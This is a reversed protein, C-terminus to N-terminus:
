VSNTLSINNSVQFQQQIVTLGAAPWRQLPQTAPMIFPASPTKRQPPMSQLM